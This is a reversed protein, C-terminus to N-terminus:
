STECMRWTRRRTAARLAGFRLEALVVTCIVVDSDVVAALKASVPSNNGHRLFEICTNTDLLYIM